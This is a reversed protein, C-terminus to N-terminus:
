PAPPDPNEPTIPAQDADCALRIGTFPFDRFFSKSVPRNPYTENWVEIDEVARWDPGLKEPPLAYHGGRAIREDGTETVWEAANGLLDHLGLRDTSKTGVRAPIPSFPFDESWNEEIDLHAIRLLSQRSKPVGGSESLAHEWEKETPLRYSRGTLESLTECYKEAVTRSMALAPYQEDFLWPHNSYFGWYESPYFGLRMAVEDYPWDMGYGMAWPYFMELRVETKSLYFPKVGREPDGQILIMEFAQEEFVEEANDGGPFRMRDIFHKISPM